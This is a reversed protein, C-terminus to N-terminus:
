TGCARIELPLTPEGRFLSSKLVSRRAFGALRAFQEVVSSGVLCQFKGLLAFTPTSPKWILNGTVRCVAPNSQVACALTADAIGWGAITFQSFEYATQTCSCPSKPPVAQAELLDHSVLRASAFAFVAVVTVILVPRMSLM